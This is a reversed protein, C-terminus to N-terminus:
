EMKLEVRPFRRAPPLTMATFPFVFLSKGKKNKGGALHARRRNRHELFGLIEGDMSSFKLHKFTRLLQKM